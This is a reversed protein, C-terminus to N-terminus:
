STSTTYSPFSDPWWGFYKRWIVKLCLHFPWDTITWESPIIRGGGEWATVVMSHCYLPCLRDHFWYCVAAVLWPNSVLPDTRNTPAGGLNIHDPCLCRRKDVTCPWPCAIWWTYEHPHRNTCLIRSSTWVYRCRLLSLLKKPWYLLM